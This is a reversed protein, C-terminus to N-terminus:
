LLTIIFLSVMIGQENSYSSPGLIDNGYIIAGVAGDSQAKLVNNIITCGATEDQNILAIRPLTNPLPLDLLQALTTNKNINNDNNNTTGCTTIEQNYLVGKLGIETPQTLNAAPKINTNFFIPTFNNDTHALTSSNSYVWVVDTPSLL